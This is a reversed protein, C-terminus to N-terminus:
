KLSQKESLVEIVKIYIEQMLLPKSCYYDINLNFSDFTLNHKSLTKEFKHHHGNVTAKSYAMDYKIEAQTLEMDVLVAVMKDESIVHKPIDTDEACSLLGILFLYLVLKKM